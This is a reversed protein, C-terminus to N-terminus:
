AYVLTMIVAAAVAASSLLTGGLAALNFGPDRVLCALGLILGLVGLVGAAITGLPIFAGVLAVAAAIVVAM